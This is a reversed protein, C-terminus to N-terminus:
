IHILSLRLTGNVKEVINKQFEKIEEEKGKHREDNEEEVGLIATPMLAPMLCISMNKYQLDPPKWGEEENAEHKPGTDENTRENDNQQHVETRILAQFQTAEAKTQSRQAQKINTWENGGKRKSDRLQRRYEVALQVKEVVKTHYARVAVWDGESMEREHRFDIEAPIAERQHRTTICSSCWQDMDM